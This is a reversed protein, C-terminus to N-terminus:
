CKRLNLSIQCSQRCPALTVADNSFDDGGFLMECQSKRHLYEFEVSM